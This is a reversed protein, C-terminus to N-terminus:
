RRKCLFIESDPEEIKEVDGLSNLERELWRLDVREFDDESHIRYFGEQNFELVALKEKAVRFLEYLFSERASADIHHIAGFCLVADFEEDSFPLSLADAVMFSIDLGENESIRKFEDLKLKDIDISTVSCGFDRAALLALPGTGIDLIKKGCIDSKELFNKRYRLKEKDIDSIHNQEMEMILDQIRVLTDSDSSVPVTLSDCSKKLLVPVSDMCHITADAETGALVGPFIIRSKKTVPGHFCSISILPTDGLQNLMDAPIEANIAFICDTENKEVVSRLDFEGPGYRPYGRSYDVAFPYGSVSTLVSQIGRQNGASVSTSLFVRHKKNLFRVFGALNAYLLGEADASNFDSGTLFTANSSDKLVNLMDLLGDWKLAFNDGNKLALRISSILSYLEASEARIFYDCPFVPKERGVVAIKKNGSESSGIIDEASSFDGEKFGWLILLNTHKLISLTGSMCGEEQVGLVPGRCVAGGYDLDVMCKLAEALLVADFATEDSCSDGLVLIPRKSQTLFKAAQACCDEFSAPKGCLLPLTVRDGSSIRNLGLNKERIM